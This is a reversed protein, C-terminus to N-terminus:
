KENGAEEMLDFTIVFGYGSSESKITGLQINEFQNADRLNYAFQAIDSHQLAVGSLTVVSGNVDIFHIMINMPVRDNLSDLFARGFPVGRSTRDLLENLAEKRSRLEHILDKKEEVAASSDRKKMDSMRESLTHLENRLDKEENLKKVTIWAMLVVLVALTISSAILFARGWRGSSPRVADDGDRLAPGDLVTYVGFKHEFAEVITSIRAGEGDIVIKNLRDAPYLYVDFSDLIEDMGGVLSLVMSKEDEDIELDDGSEQFLKWLRGIKIHELVSMLDYGYKPIFPKSSLEFSGVGVHCDIEKVIEGDEILTIRSADRGISVNAIRQKGEEVSIVDQKNM